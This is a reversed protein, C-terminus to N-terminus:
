KREAFDNLATKVLEKHKWKKYIFIGEFYGDDISENEEFEIYILHETDFPFRPDFYDEHIFNVHAYEYNRELTERLIEPTFYM